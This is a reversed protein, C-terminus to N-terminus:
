SNWKWTTLISESVEAREAASVEQGFSLTVIYGTEEHAVVYQEVRYKPDGLEFWASTHVAQEGDIQVPDKTRIRTASADALMQKAADELETGEIGVITSDTVVNINDVFGVQDKVDIALSMARSQDSEEWGEPVSYSFDDNSIVTGHAPEASLPTTTPTTTPSTTPDAGGGSSGDCAALTAVLIVAVATWRSLLMGRFTDSKEM